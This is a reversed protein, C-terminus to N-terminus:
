CCWRRPTAHRPLAERRRARGLVLGRGARLLQPVPLHQAQADAARSARAALAQARAAVTPDINEGPPTALEAARDTLVLRADAGPVRVTSPVGYHTDILFARVGADLQGKITGIQEAFLWGPYLASSM